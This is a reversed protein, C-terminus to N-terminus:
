LSRTSSMNDALALALSMEISATLLLDELQTVALCCRHIGLEQLHCLFRLYHNMKLLQILELSNKRRRKRGFISGVKSKLKSPKKPSASKELKAFSSNRRQKNNPVAAPALHQGQQQLGRQPTAFQTNVLYNLQNQMEADLKFSGLLYNTSNENNKLDKTLKGNNLQFFNLIIDFM